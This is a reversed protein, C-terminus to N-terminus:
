RRSPPPSCSASSSRASPSGGRTRGAPPSTRPSAKSAKSTRRAPLHLGRHRGPGRLAGGLHLVGPQDGDPRQPGSAAPPHHVRRRDRHDRRDGLRDAPLGPRGRRVRGPGPHPRRGAHGRVVRVPRRGHRRLRRRQRRRQRRHDGRQAPRGRPHGARGQRGPRRRRRRGQHLHRRRGAHVDRAARRRLRLGGPGDPADGRYLLVVLPRVSCASASPSSASSAAPASRSRCPRRVAARGGRPGRRRRAPERPDGAGHRRRRHVRQVRAGVVFFASRGIKVMTENDGTGHVPLLYLLVVALVVFIALTRFQRRLYASAGEQVAGAIEQMTTTGKGTALVARRLAAAFGLAVLAIVLAVIVYTVNASTLSLGGSDAALTGTGSM